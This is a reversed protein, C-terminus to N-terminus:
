FTFILILLVIIKGTSKCPYLVQVRVNFPSCRIFNNSFLTSLPFKSRLPIFHCSSPSFQMILHKTIQVIRWMNNPHYFLSTHPPRSMNAHLPLHSTRVFNQKSFRFSLSVWLGVSLNSPLILCYRISITNSATRQIRRAWLLSRHRTRTFVAIFM